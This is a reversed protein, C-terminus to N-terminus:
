NKGALREAYAAIAAAAVHNKGGRTVAFDCTRAFQKIHAEFMPKVQELYQRAIDDVERGREHIDRQVRRMLCVDEEVQMFVKVNCLARVREDYFVHIGEIILVDPPVIVGTSNESCHHCYNYSRRQIATGSCLSALDQYFDELEFMDPSDFNRLRREAESLHSHDKYYTDLALISSSVSLCSQIEKAFTSKGSGSAGCIGIIVM